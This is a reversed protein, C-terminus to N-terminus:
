IQSQIEANRVMAWARLAADDGTKASEDTKVRVEEQVAEPNVWGTVDCGGEAASQYNHQANGLAMGALFSEDELVRGQVRSHQLATPLKRRWATDLMRQAGERCIGDRAAGDKRSAPAM